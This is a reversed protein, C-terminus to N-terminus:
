PGHPPGEPFFAARGASAAALRSAQRAPPVEGLETHVQTVIPEHRDATPTLTVDAAFWPADTTRLTYADVGVGVGAGGTRRGLGLHLTVQGDPHEPLVFLPAALRRAGRGVVVVDGHAAGHAIATRPSVFAANGWT